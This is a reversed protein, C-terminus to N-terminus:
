TSSRVRGAAARPVASASSGARGRHVHPERPRQLPRVARGVNVTLRRIVWSDMAYAAFEDISTSVRHPRCVVLVSDPVGSRYRQTLHANAGHRLQRQECAPVARRDERQALRDRVVGLELRRVVAARRVARQFQGARRLHEAVLDRRLAGAYWEPTGVPKVIGPLPTGFETPFQVASFGTEVLLRNTVPSTWKVYSLFSNHAPYTSTATEWDVGPRAANAPPSRSPTTRARSGGTSTRPSRTARRRGALDRARLSQAPRQDHIRARRDRLLHAGAPHVKVESYKGSGFFWLKDRLIPGGISPTVEVLHELRRGVAAGGGETRAHPQGGALWEFSGGVFFDGAFTNGGDRPIMNIRVGGGASDAGIASTQYTVDQVMAFNNYGSQSVGNSIRVDM